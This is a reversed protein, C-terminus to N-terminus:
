CLSITTNPLEADFTLLWGEINNTTTSQDIIDLGPNESATIDNEAFDHYMSTWIRNLVSLMENMNDVENDQQWFKDTRVEDNIDRQQLAAIEVNLVVTSGNTFNGGTITIHLLPFILGKDLDLRDYDGQTITNIFPDAEGLTKIYTLLQTYHNM